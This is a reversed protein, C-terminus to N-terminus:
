LNLRNPWHVRRGSRTVRSTPPLPHTPPPSPAPTDPPVGSSDVRDPLSATSSSNDLHAPKLRDLSVTDQRGNIDLKYYKDFRELVRYPGEYPQELSKRVRDVRVFVHTCKSLARHIYVQGPTPTRTPTARLQSMASKLRDVYQSLNLPNSSPPSFFEGPLRLTTGYVLEATTCKIDQKLATRIGLLVLPLTETWKHPQPYAKLAAKLQRHLREVLGNSCPHYATTRIHNAGLTSNLYQWLTSEFQSGRDTTITTPVGFRAIWGSIFAQAVTQAEINTIPFAEPWRTYRDICTLLYTFGQSPPLPGVIDVHVMDFRRDPVTFASVPTTTHRQVKSRQCQMCSRTWHRVDTNMHPWVFRTSILHQTARIGPHALSHLSQFVFRRHSVPVLPRAVGTSIDCLLTVSSNPLTVHSLNLSLGSLQETPIGMLAQDQQATAMAEFDIHPVLVGNVEVRSLADAVVNDNGRVHRIDTTFQSIFELHRIQRPSYKDSQRALSFTLPKHDTFIRFVCGEVFYRFHKIALYVALLERDFTSYRKEALSLTKSIFGIPMWQQNIYQQLVAGVATDSADTVIATLADTHPHSLVTADALADKARQFADTTEATWQLDKSTKSSSLFSHLPQLLQACNRIFRHYFNILGLFERLQRPTVPQPFDRVAQVKEQLPSIGQVNVCHGLFHLQTVGLTCKQPNIIIGYESLHQFVLTLHQKHEEASKSAILVDDIYTHVFHLGQFVRDVFRQFTQAANRLGFPMKLFEFLGFPTTYMVPHVPIQHYARILDVVICGQLSVSFDQLHPIPYRDPITANNLARYDGCPRWDGPTKKPVLHLPSSWESSSPQIIGLELM